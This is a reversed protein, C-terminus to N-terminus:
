CVTSPERGLVGSNRSLVVKRPIHWWGQITGRKASAISMSSYHREVFKGLIKQISLLNRRSHGPWPGLNQHFCKYSLYLALAKDSHANPKPDFAKKFDPDDYVCGGEVHATLTTDEEETASEKPEFHGALWELGRKVHGAYKETTNAANQHRKKGAEKAKQMAPLTADGILASRKKKTKSTNSPAKPMLSSASRLLAKPAVGTWTGNWM